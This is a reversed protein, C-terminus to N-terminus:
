QKKEATLGEYVLHDGAAEITEGLNRGLGEIVCETDSVALLPLRLQGDLWAVFLGPEKDIGIRATISQQPSIKFLYDGFRNKWAEPVPLAEIRTALATATSLSGLGLAPRGEFKAPRLTLTDLRRVPLKIGLIRKELSITDDSHWGGSLWSGGINVKFGAGDKKLEILGLRSAYCGTLSEIEAKPAPSPAARELKPAFPKEGKVRTGAKVAQELLDELDFAKSNVLISVALDREPFLTVVAFFPPLAGDHGIIFEGPLSDLSFVLFNLGVRSGQDAAVGENQASFMLKVTSQALIGDKGGYAALYSAAFKALDRATTDLAGAPIDRIYPIAVAKGKEFGKAYRPDKDFGEPLIFSSDQMGLPQFLEKQVFAEFSLGSVREVIIGLMAVSLNSYSLV